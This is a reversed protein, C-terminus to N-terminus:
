RRDDGSGRQLRKVQHPVAVCQAIAQDVVGRVEPIGHGKAEPAFFRVLYAVVLFGLAPVLIIWAGLKHELPSILDFGVQQHMFLHQCFGILSRFAIAFYGALIGVAVALSNVLIVERRSPKGLFARGRSAWISALGSAHKTPMSIKM